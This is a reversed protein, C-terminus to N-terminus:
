QSLSSIYSDDDFSGKRSSKRIYNCHAITYLLSGKPFTGGMPPIDASRVLPSGSGALLSDGFTVSSSNDLDTIQSVVEM